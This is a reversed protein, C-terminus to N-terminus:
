QAKCRNSHPVLWRSEIRRARSKALTLLRLSAVFANAPKISFRRRTKGLEACACALGGGGSNLITYFVKSVGIGEYFLTRLFEHYFEQLFFNMPHSLEKM